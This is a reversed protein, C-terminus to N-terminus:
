NNYKKASKIWLIFAAKRDNYLGYEVNDDMEFTINSIDYNCDKGIFKYSCEILYALDYYDRYNDYIGHGLKYRNCIDSIFLPNYFTYLKSNIRHLMSLYIYRKSLDLRVSLDM